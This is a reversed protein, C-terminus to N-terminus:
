VSFLARVAEIRARNAGFDERGLRSSSRVHIVGGPKDLLFEMDDTFKFWVTTNQAYIYGPERKVVVTRESKQLLDALRNMATDGDGVFKFPAIDAYQKQPHDAHLAAQSSVSNPNKSPPALRGDVSGLKQPPTGALFGLQGAVLLGVALFLALLAVFGLVKVILGRKM